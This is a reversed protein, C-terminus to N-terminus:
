QMPISEGLYHNFVLPLTNTPNIDLPITSTDYEPLYMAFLIDSRLEQPFGPLEENDPKIRAGHDSQLIIVPQRQPDANDLIATVLEEIYDMTFIYQGEYYSWDQTFEAGVLLGNRDFLFDPHPLMLHSYVFRPAPVDELKPLRSKVALVFKRHQNHVSYNSKYYKSFARLMTSDAVLMGYDDFLVGVDVGDDLSSSYLLDASIEPMNPYFVSLEEFVITTYGKSELLAMSRNDALNIQWLAQDDWEYRYDTYNLRSAMQHLTLLSTSRVDESVFFGKEELFLKFEDVETNKWYERMSRFGAFEDFILYYIDPYGQASGSLSATNSSHAFRKPASIKKYEMPILKITTLVLLVCFIILTGRWFAQAQAPKIRSLLWITYMALFIYFPLLTFHEVRFIDAELLFGYVSGYTNFFLLTLITSNAARVSKFRHIFLFVGYLILILLVYMGIVRGFSAIKILGANKTYYYYAPYVGFLFPAFLRFIIRCSKSEPKNLLLLRKVISM